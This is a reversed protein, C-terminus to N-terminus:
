FVEVARLTSSLICQRKRRSRKLCIGFSILLSQKFHSLIVSFIAGSIPLGFAPQKCKVHWRWACRHSDCDGLSWRTMAFATPPTYYGTFIVSPSFPLSLSQACLLHTNCHSYLRNSIPISPSILNMNLCHHLFSYFLRCSVM